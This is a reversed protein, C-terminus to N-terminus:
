PHCGPVPEVKAAVPMRVRREVSDDDGCATGRVSWPGRARMVMVEVKLVLGESQARDTGSAASRISWPM